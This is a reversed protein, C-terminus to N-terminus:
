SGAGCLVAASPGLNEALWGLWLTGFSWLGYDLLFISVVRGRHADDTAEHLTAMAVTRFLMQMAGVVALAALSLTMWRSLAFVGLAACLAIAARYLTDLPGPGRGRAAVALSAVLAGLGPAAMLAGYSKEGGHLVDTAFIPLLRHFAMALASLGYSLAVPVWLRERAGVFRVGEILEATVSTRKPSPRVPLRMAFLALLIAVFSIANILLCGSIGVFGLMMGGIAPGIVQTVNFGAANLAVGAQLESAPVLAPVLSHRAILHLTDAIGLVITLVVIDRYTVTHTAVLLW